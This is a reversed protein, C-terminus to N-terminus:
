KVRSGRADYIVGDKLIYLMDNMIFKHAKGDKLSGKGDSAGDIATPANYINIELEFRDDITGKELYVEYDELALNTRTQAFKDILTVTGSFNYPMAFKYTGNKRIIMGVPITQSKIPLANYAVDYAGAFSYINPVGRNNVKSLDENLMFDEDAGNRLDLYTWDNLNGNYWMDLKIFYNKEDEATARCPAEFINKETTTWTITGAWQVLVASMAKFMPADKIAQVMWTPQTGYVPNDLYYYSTLATDVATAFEDIYSNHFLPSGVTNWHSDTNMHNKDEKQAWPRNITCTHKPVISTQNTNDIKAIEEMAPFYMYVSSGAGKNDWIHGDWGGAYMNDFIVYYGQGAKMTDNKTLYEWYTDGDGLFLGESARKAGNYGQIIYDTGLKAQNLGFISNVAVDFPFSVFYKLYPRTVPNWTYVDVHGPATSNKHISDYRLEIAGIPRVNTLKNGDGLTLQTAADDKHRVWLMDFDSLDESIPTSTLVFSSMMFNTKFDYVVRIDYMNSSSGGLVVNDNPILTQYHKTPTADTFASQVGAKGGPKVKLDIEYVWNGMDSFRRKDATTGYLDVPTAATNYIKGSEYPMIDMYENDLSAGLYARKTENTASNYSFRISTGDVPVYPETGDMRAIGDGKVTDSLQNCYDNAIVSKINCDKSAFYKCFYNDYTASTRDFNVTNKDLINKKYAVWGGPAADTKIYYDGTYLRVSDIESVQDNSIVVDFQYVGPTFDGDSLIGSLNTDDGASWVPKGSGDISNCKRLKLTGSGANNLYMSYRTKTGASSAKIINTRTTKASGDNFANEIVYDGAVIPYEVSIKMQDGSQDLTIIYEGEATPTLTFYADSGNDEVVAIDTCNNFTITENAKYKLGGESFIAYKDKNLGDIRLRYRIQPKEDFARELVVFQDAPKGSYKGSGTRQEIWYGANVNDSITYHMWYGKNYYQTWYGDYTEKVHNPVFMNHKTNYDSRYSGHHTGSEPNFVASNGSVDYDAFAVKTKNNKTAYRPVYARYIGTSGIAEMQVHLGKSSNNASTVACHSGDNWTVDFYAYVNSWSWVPNTGDDFKNRFYISELPEFVATLTGATGAGLGRLTVENDEDGTNNDLTFDPTDSLEWRAFYYGENPTVVINRHTTVGVKTVTGWTFDEGGVTVTGFFSANARITVSTPTEVFKAYVNANANVPDIETFDFSGGSFDSSGYYHGLTYGTAPEVSWELKGGTAIYKGNTIAVTTGSETAEASMTGGTTSNSHKVGDVDEYGQGISVLHSAQRILKVTPYQNADNSLKTIKFTYSGRGATYFAVEHDQDDLLLSQDGIDTFSPDYGMNKNTVRDHVVFKYASNPNLVRTCTLNAGDNTGLSSVTGTFVADNDGWGPMGGNGSNDTLSGRLEYRRAFNAQITATETTTVTTSLASANGFSASGSTVTWGTFYWSADALAAVIPTTTAPHAGVTSGSGSPTTISGGTTANVTVTLTDESYIAYITTDKTISSITYVQDTSLRGDTWSSPNNKKFWGKFHYGTNANAARFTVSNGNAVYGGNSIAHDSDDDNEATPAGSNGTGAVKTIASYNVQRRTPYTVTITKTSYNFDFKYDGKLDATIHLNNQKDVLSSVSPPTANYTINATPTKGYYYSDYVPKFDYYKGRELQITKTVTNAVGADEWDDTLWPLTHGDVTGSTTGNINYIELRNVVPVAVELDISSVGETIKFVYDGDYNVELWINHGSSNLGTESPNDKGMTNAGDSAGKGYWVDTSGDGAVVKRVKIYTKYKPDLDEFTKKLLGITCTLPSGSFMHYAPDPQWNNFGGVLYYGEALWHAHLTQGGDHCWKKDSDTHYAVGAKWHGTADIVQIGGEAQTWYGDFGYGSKTPLNAKAIDSPVVGYTVTQNGPGSSGGHDNITVTYRNAKFRAYINKTSNPANYPSSVSSGGSAADYWGIFTYGTKASASFTVAGTYAADVSATKTAADDITSENSTNNATGIAKMKVASITITGADVALDSFTSGNDTSVYKYATQAHNLSEYNAGTYNVELNSTGSSTALYSSGDSLCYWLKQGTYETASQCQTYGWANSGWTSSGTGIFAMYSAGKFTGPTCYVLNTNDIATLSTLNTWGDHGVALYKNASTWTGKDFYVVGGSNNILKVNTLNYKGNDDGGSIQNGIEYYNKNASSIGYNVTQNWMYDWSVSGATNSMRVFIITKASTDMEGRYTHDTGTVKTMFNPYFYWSDDSKQIYVAFKAGDKDWTSTADLYIPTADAWM